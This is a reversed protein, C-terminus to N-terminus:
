LLNGNQPFAADLARRPAFGPDATAWIKRLSTVLPTAKSPAGDTAYLRALELMANEWPVGTVNFDTTEGSVPEPVGVPFTAKTLVLVEVVCDPIPVRLRVFPVAFPLSVDNGAPM